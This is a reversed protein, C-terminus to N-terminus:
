LYADESDLKLKSKQKDGRKCKDVKPIFKRMIPIKAKKM